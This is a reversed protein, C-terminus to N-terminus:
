RRVIEIDTLANDNSWPFTYTAEKVAIVSFDSSAELHTFTISYPKVLDADNANIRISGFSNEAIDEVQVEAKGEQGEIFIKQNKVALLETNGGVVDFEIKIKEDPTTYTWAGILSTFGVKEKNDCAFLLITIAILTLHSVTKM